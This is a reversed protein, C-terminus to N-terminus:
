SCRAGRTASRRGCGAAGTRPGCRWGRRAASPRARTCTTAPWTARGKHRCEYRLARVTGPVAALGPLHEQDYWANLDAEAEPLVDTEVIYHWPADQGSSAGPLDLTRHLVRVSAGPLQEAVRAGVEPLTGEGGDIYLYTEDEDVAAYASVRVNPLGDALRGAIGAARPAGIREGLSLLLVTDTM